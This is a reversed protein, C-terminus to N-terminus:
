HIKRLRRKHSASSARHQTDAMGSQVQPKTPCGRTYQEMPAPIGGWALPSTQRRKLELELERLDQIAEKWFKPLSSTEASNKNIPALLKDLPTNLIIHARGFRYRAIAVRRFNTEM